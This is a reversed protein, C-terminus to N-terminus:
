TLLFPLDKIVELNRLRILSWIIPMGKHKGSRTVPIIIERILYRSILHDPSAPEHRLIEREITAEDTHQTAKSRMLRAEIDDWRLLLFNNIKTIMIFKLIKIFKFFLILYFILDFNQGSEATWIVFNCLLPLFIKVNYFKTNGLPKWLQDPVPIRGICLIQDIQFFVCLDTSDM